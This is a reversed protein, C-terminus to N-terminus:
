KCWFERKLYQLINNNFELRSLTVLHQFLLYDLRKWFNGLFYGFYTKVQFIFTKYYGLFNGLLQAVKALSETVATREFFGLRTM